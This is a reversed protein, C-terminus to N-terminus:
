LDKRKLCLSSAVSFFLAWLVAMCLLGGLVAWSREENSGLYIKWDLWELQPLFEAAQVVWLAWTSSIFRGSTSDAFVAQIASSSYLFLVLSVSTAMALLPRLLLSLFQTFALVIGVSAWQLLKIQVALMPWDGVFFLSHCLWTASFWLLDITCLVVWFGLLNAWLWHDRSAGNSLVLHLTRSRQEESFLQSALLIALFHQAVFSFGLAFDLFIKEPALYSVEATILSVVILALGAALALWGIKQRLLLRVRLFFLAWFATGWSTTQAKM